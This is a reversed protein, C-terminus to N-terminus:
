VNLIEEMSAELLGSDIYKVIKDKIHKSTDFEYKEQFKLKGIDQIRTEFVGLFFSKNITIIKQPIQFIIKDYKIECQELNFGKRNLTSLLNEGNNRGVLATDNKNIFKILDITLNNASM